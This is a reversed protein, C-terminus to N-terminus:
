GNKLPTILVNRVWQYRILRGESATLVRSIDGRSMKLSALYRVKSSIQTLKALEAQVDTKLAPVSKKANSM